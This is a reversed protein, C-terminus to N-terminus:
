RTSMLKQSDTLKYADIKKKAGTMEYEDIKRSDILKHAVNKRRHM